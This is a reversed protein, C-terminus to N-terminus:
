VKKACVWPRWGQKKFLEYATDINCRADFACSSTIHHHVTNLQFVGRDVTGNKNVGISEPNFGSECKAIALARECDKGFKECIYKKIEIRLSLKEPLKEGVTKTDGGARPFVPASEARSSTVTPPSAHVPKNLYGFTVMFGIFFFWILAVVMHRTQRREEIRRQTMYKGRRKILRYTRYYTIGTEFKM